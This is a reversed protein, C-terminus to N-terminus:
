EPWRGDEACRCVIARGQDDRTIAHQAIRRLRPARPSTLWRWLTDWNADNAPHARLSIQLNTKESMAPGGEVPMKLKALETPPIRYAGGPIRFARLKGLRIWTQVTQECVRLDRAIESVKLSREM